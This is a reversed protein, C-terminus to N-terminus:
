RNRVSKKLPEFAADTAAQMSAIDKCIRKHSKLDKKQCAVSCYWVMKCRSCRKLLLSSSSSSSSTSQATAHELNNGDEETGCANCFPNERLPRYNGEYRPM